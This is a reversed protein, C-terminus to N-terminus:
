RKVLEVLWEMGQRNEFSDTPREIHVMEFLGLFHHEVDARTTKFPPGEPHDTEYFLGIIRGKDALVSHMVQVYPERMEVPIACFCTHELVVDFSSSYTTPLDFIDSQLVQLPFNGVRERLDAVAGAAFDVATVPHGLQALFLAEHGRGCGPVLIRKDTDWGLEEVRRVLPLHRRVRTGVLIEKTM